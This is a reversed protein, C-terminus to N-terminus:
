RAPWPNSARKTRCLARWSKRCHSRRNVGNWRSGVIMAPFVAERVVRAKLGLDMAVRAVRALAKPAVDVRVARVVPAVNAGVLAAMVARPVRAVVNAAIKAVLAKM